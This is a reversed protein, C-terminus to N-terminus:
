PREKKVLLSANAIYATRTTTNRIFQLAQDPTYKEVGIARCIDKSLETVLTIHIRATKAMMALATGGNGQYNQALEDFANAFGGKDFWPLFTQSGVGESCQCFLLLTGGDEVFMSANHIAKHS